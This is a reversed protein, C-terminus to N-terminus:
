VKIRDNLRPHDPAPQPEPSNSYGTSWQAGEARRRNILGQHKRRGAYVWKMLEAPVAGFDGANLKRLLTSKSFAGTGVNYAFSVLTDYHHQKLPVKVLNKIAGEFRRLDNRFLRDGEEKTITKGPYVDAGTHGYGITWIGAVDQYAKARFGERNHLLRVGENSLQLQSNVGM